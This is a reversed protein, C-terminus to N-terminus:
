SLDVRRREASSVLAADVVEQVRVGDLFSPTPLRDGIIADVFLRPGASQMAYPDFLGDPRVGGEFFRDPVPLPAFHAEGQKIGRLAVGADVGGFTHEGEITGADGHLHVRIRMVQDGVLTVASAQVQARSGSRFALTLFAVDNVPLPPPKAFESQDAFVSLEASVSAIDGLYWRGFDIMHSGLDGLIGNARRGDFRWKYGPDRAYGGFFDFRAQTCRGIFGSDVLHKVYRWHPQWRWTFLVMHKVRAAEARRYMAWAGAANNALPKECLVHLGADLAAMTIEHHTDDPTAVIVADIGGAAILERYDVHVRAGGLKRAIEGAREANRGGVAVVEARPHSNLSPVYMQDAWWSTGIMGVRLKGPM